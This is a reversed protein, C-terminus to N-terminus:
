KMFVDILMEIVDAVFKGLCGHLYMMSLFFLSIDSPGCRFTFFFGQLFFTNLEELNGHGFKVTLTNFSRQHNQLFLQLGTSYHRNPSLGRPLIASDQPISHVAVYDSTAFSAAYSLRAGAWAFAPPSIVFGDDKVNYFRGYRDM